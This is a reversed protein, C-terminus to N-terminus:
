ALKYRKIKKSTTKEFEEYQVQIHNIQKFTPLRRNIAAIDAKLRVEHNDVGNAQIYDEDIVFAAGILPEKGEKEVFPFVVVEKIYPIEAALLEELEEPQVNKGNSLIITNKLRGTVHVFGNADMRGLDGTKFWEGYFANQTAEENKYYGLMVNDGKVMIEGEGFENPNAIRVECCPITMGVADAKFCKNRNVCVLPTCETIGYGNLVQIGLENFGTVLESRLPAGGCVILRLNGGFAQRVRKFFLKRLDLGIRLLLNSIGILKRLLETRGSKRVTDWINKYMAELFLPVLVLMSPRFLKLNDSVYKLSDNFCITVGVYLATLIGCSNEYTHHIPLVSMTVREVRIACMAGYLVAAFNRQCLMVGKSKGTTGSTYLLVCMRDVDIKARTFCEDGRKLLQRGIDLLHSFSLYGNQESQAQMDVCVTIKPVQPLISQIIKTFSSSYVIASADSQSLVGAIEEQSLEKDVPVSVGVGNVTALYTVVWEYSNEGIVAIHRDKLGIHLMATGLADVDHKLQEYSIGRIGGELTKIRFADRRGFKGASNQLMERLDRVRKCSYWGYNNIPIM